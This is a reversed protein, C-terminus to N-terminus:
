RRNRSHGQSTKHRKVEREFPREGNKGTGKYIGATSWEFHAHFCTQSGSRGVVIIALPFRRKRQSNM